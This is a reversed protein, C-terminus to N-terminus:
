DRRLDSRFTTRPARRPASSPKVRNELAGVMEAAAFTQSWRYERRVAEGFESDEPVLRKGPEPAVCTSNGPEHEAYAADIMRRLPTTEREWDTRLIALWGGRRLAREAVRTGRAPEIWHWAQGSTVLDFSGVQPPTWDEFDSEEVECCPYPALNRRAVAAMAPDPEVGVVQVGRDALAVAVRGTGCGADVARCPTGVLRVVDDILEDPYSPRVRDYLEADEGFVLRQPRTM